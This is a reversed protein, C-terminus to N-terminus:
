RGLLALMVALWTLLSFSAMSVAVAALVRTRQFTVSLGEAKIHLEGLIKSHALLQGSGRETAFELARVQESFRTGDGMVRQLKHELCQLSQYFLVHAHNNDALDQLPLPLLNIVSPAPKWLVDPRTETVANIFGEIMGRREVLSILSVLKDARGDGQLDDYEIGLGFCLSRVEAADFHQVMKEHLYKYYPRATNKM